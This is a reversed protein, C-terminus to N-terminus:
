GNDEPKRSISEEQKDPLRLEMCAAPLSAFVPKLDPEVHISGQLGCASGTWCQCGIHTCTSYGSRTGVICEICCPGGDFPVVNPRLCPGGGSGGGCDECQIQAQATGSLILLLVFSGACMFAYKWYPNKM